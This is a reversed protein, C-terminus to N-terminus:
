REERDKNKSKNQAEIIEKLKPLIKTEINDIYENNIVMIEKLYLVQEEYRINDCFDYLYKVGDKSNLINYVDVVEFEDVKFNDKLHTCLDYNNLEKLANSIDCLLEYKSDHELNNTFDEGIEYLTDDLKEELYNQLGGDTDEYANYLFDLINDEKYLLSSLTKEDYDETGDFMDVLTQKIAIVYANDIIKKSDLKEINKIYNFYEKKLREHVETLLRNEM